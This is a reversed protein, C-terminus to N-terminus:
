FDAVALRKEFARHLVLTLPLVPIIMIISAAFATSYAPRDWPSFISLLGIQAVQKAPDSIVILPWLMSDYIGVINIIWTVLLIPLINPVIIEFLIRIPRAGDLAAAEDISRPCNDVASLLIAFSLPSGIWPLILGIWTNVLNVNGEIIYLPTLISQYPLFILFINIKSFLATIHRTSRSAAYAAMLCVVVTATAQLIAVLATNFVQTIFYPRNLAAEFSAM